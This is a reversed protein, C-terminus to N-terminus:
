FLYSAGLRLASAAFPKHNFGNQANVDNWNNNNEGWTHNYTIYTNIHKNIAYGLGLALTPAFGHSKNSQAAFTTGNITATNSLTAKQMQYAVGPEIFFNVGNDFSKAFIALLDVSDASYELQGPANTIDYTTNGYNNYKLEYGLNIDGKQTIPWQYGAYMSWSVPHHVSRTLGQDLTSPSSLLGAGANAGFFFNGQAHGIGAISLLTVSILFNKKISM